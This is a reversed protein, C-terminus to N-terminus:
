GKRRKLWQVMGAIVFAAPLLFVCVVTWLNATLSDMMLYPVQLSKAPVALSSELDKCLYSVSDGFLKGNSGSVSQDYDPDLLYGTSYYVIETDTQKDNNIDEQILVGITFPGEKDGAEKESTTMHEVDAKAYSASTTSLLPQWSISNRRNEAETIGQSMPALLYTNNYVSATIETYNVSPILCYQYSMYRGSDGELIIGQEKEVGYNTLISDFNPNENLSYDSYILAKGGKELYAIVAEAEAASYDKGPSRLLLAAADEPVNEESLLNLTKVEINNKEIIDQFSATLEREENGEVVYLVPHNDSTVYSIGSTIQGEGDFGGKVYTGTQSSYVSVYMSDAKIVRSVDGSAVIVSNNALSEETYQKTFGPYLVPDVQTVTIRDSYDNYRELLKQITDNEEGGECIYYIDVQKELHDLFNETVDTLTYLKVTSFDFQTIQSPLKNIILNVLVAAVILIVTLIISFSGHYLYKRNHNKM